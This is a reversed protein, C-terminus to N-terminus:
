NTRKAIYICAIITFLAVLLLEYFGVEGVSQMGIIMIPMLALVSAYYYAKRVDMEPHPTKAITSSMKVIIKNVGVLLFVLAGLVSVYMLIFVALIGLPGITTPTTMQWIAVLLVIAVVSIFSILKGFM